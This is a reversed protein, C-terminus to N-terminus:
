ACSFLHSLHKTETQNGTYSRAFIGAPKTIATNLQWTKMGASWTWIFASLLRPCVRRWYIIIIQCEEKYRYNSFVEPFFTPNSSSLKLPQSHWWHGSLPTEHGTYLIWAQHFLLPKVLTLGSLSCWVPVRVELDLCVDCFPSFVNNMIILYFIERM